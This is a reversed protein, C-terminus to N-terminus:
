WIIVTNYMVRCGEGEYNGGDGLILHTMGCEDLEANYMAATREYAHLHGSLVIDVGWQYLLPEMAVRLLEGEKWHITNSHYLSAHIMVVVWPTRARNVRSSLYMELWRYQVSTNSSAAYSNLVIVHVPGVERGYYSPDPSSSGVYPTPYRLQYPVWNEGSQVEHNGGSTLLPIHSALPEIMRGFADWTNIYGDSYCLDGVLFIANPQLSSLASITAVSVQTTGVDGTLGVSFPFLSESKMADASSSGSTFYFSPMHFDYITCSNSVRYYYTTDPLLHPLPVSHLLLSSYYMYPNNYQGFGYFMETVNYWNFRHTPSFILVFPLCYVSLYSATASLISKQISYMYVLGIHM